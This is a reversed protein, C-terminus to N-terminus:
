ARIGISPRNRTMMLISDGITHIAMRRVPYLRMLHMYMIM